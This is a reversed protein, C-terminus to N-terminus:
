ITEQIKDMMQPQSWEDIIMMLSKVESKMGLDIGNKIMVTHLVVNKKKTKGRKQKCFQSM